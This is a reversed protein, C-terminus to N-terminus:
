ESEGSEFGLQRQQKRALVPRREGLKRAQRSGTAPASQLPDASGVLPEGSHVADLREQGRKAYEQSLEFGIPRRGLKKAVVLTSASGAFPDLVIEGPRSCAKIIRGLLQEPMQCGHFGAREKFTGSVRPFYWTDEDAEFSEAADQPRLIWTDDPVRGTPNARRDGYVLQRASPVAIAERDFTFRAKDKTFYFLHAHSRTFKSKCHVGFTYYWIVWNRTHFGLQKAVLKLEAAYEDGIALWFTGDAKLVRQVEGMWQRCWDLYKEEDLRDDYEDYDYGINFPPDAFVLDISGAALQQLGAVCDGQHITNLLSEVNM